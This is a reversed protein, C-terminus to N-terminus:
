LIWTLGLGGGATVGESSWIVYQVSCVTYLGSLSETNTGCVYFHHLFSKLHSLM